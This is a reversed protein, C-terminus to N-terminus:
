HDFPTGISGLESFYKGSHIQRHFLYPSEFSGFYLLFIPYIIVFHRGFFWNRDRSMFNGVLFPFVVKRFSNKRSIQSMISSQLYLYVASIFNPFFNNPQTKISILLDQAHDICMKKGGFSACPLTLCLWPFAWALLKANECYRAFVSKQTWLSGGQGSLGLKDSGTFKTGKPVILYEGKSMMRMLM